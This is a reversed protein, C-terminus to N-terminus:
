LSSNHEHIFVESVVDWEKLTHAETRKVHMEEDGDGDRVFRDDALLLRLGGVTAFGTQLAVFSLEFDQTTYLRLPPGKREDEDESDSDADSTAAMAQEKLEVVPLVVASQGFFSVNGQRKQHLNEDAATFFPPPLAVMFDTSKPTQQGDDALTLPSSATQSQSAILLKQHALGYNFTAFTPSPTSFGPSRSGRPSYVEFPVPPNTSPPPPPPLTRPPLLHQIILSLRLGHGRRESPLPCSLVLTFQIAFPKGVALSDRPISRVILNTEINHTNNPFLPTSPVPSQPRASVSPPRSNTRFPSGPRQGPGPSTPRSPPQQPSAVAKKLHPPLASVPAQPATILPIRRSLMSTLLRGPEGFSSRWSIDLRGLPIITGPTRSIPELTFSKPTLIYIYQRMDQPQMLATEKNNADQANWEEIAEFAM